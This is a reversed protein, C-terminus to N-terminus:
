CFLYLFQENFRKRHKLQAKIQTKSPQVVVPNGPVVRARPQVLLKAEKQPGLHNIVCNDCSERKRKLKTIQSFSAATFLFM